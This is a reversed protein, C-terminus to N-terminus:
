AVHIELAPKGPPHTRRAVTKIHFHHLVMQLIQLQVTQDLQIFNRIAGQTSVGKEMETRERRIERKKKAHGECSEGEGEEYM